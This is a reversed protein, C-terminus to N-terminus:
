FEFILVMQSIYYYLEFGFIYSSIGFILLFTFKHFHQVCM